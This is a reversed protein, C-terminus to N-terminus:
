HLALWKLYFCSGSAHIHDSRFTNTMHATLVAKLVGNRVVDGCVSGHQQHQEDIWHQECPGRRSTLLGSFMLNTWGWILILKHKVDETYKVKENWVLGILTINLITRARRLEIIVTPPHKQKVAWFVDFLAHM